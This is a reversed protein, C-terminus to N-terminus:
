IIEVYFTIKLLYLFKTLDCTRFKTLFGGHEFLYQSESNCMLVKETCIVELEFWGRLIDLITHILPPSQDSM